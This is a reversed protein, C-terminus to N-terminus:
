AGPRTLLKALLLGAFVGALLVLAFVLAVGAAMGPVGWPMGLTAGLVISLLVAPLLAVLAGGFCLKVALDPNRSRSVLPPLTRRGVSISLFTGGAVGIAIALWEIV